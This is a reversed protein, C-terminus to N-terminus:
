GATLELHVQRRRRHFHLSDNSRSRRQQRPHSVTAPLHRLPLGIAATPKFHIQPRPLRGAIRSSIMSRSELRTAMSETLGVSTSPPAPSVAIAANMAPQARAAPRSASSQFCRGAPGGREDASASGTTAPRQQEATVDVRDVDLAHVLRVRRADVAVPEIAAAGVVHLGADGGRQDGATLGRLETEGAVDDDGRDGVLLVRADAHLLRQARDTGVGRDDGLRGLEFHDDRMLAEHPGLDLHRSAGACPDRGCRPVSAITLAPGIRVAIPSSSPASPRRSCGSTPRPEIWAETM